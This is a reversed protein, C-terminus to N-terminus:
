TARDHESHLASKASQHLPSQLKQLPEQTKVESDFQLRNVSSFGIWGSVEDLPLLLIRNKNKSMGYESKM